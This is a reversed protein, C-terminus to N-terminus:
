YICFMASEVKYSSDLPRDKISDQMLKGNIKQPTKVAFVPVFKTAQSIKPKHRQQTVIFM